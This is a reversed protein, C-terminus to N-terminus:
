GVILGSNNVDQAISVSYGDPYSVLAGLSAVNTPTSWKAARVGLYAFNEYIESYGVIEGSANIANPLSSAPEPSLATLIALDYRPVAADCNTAFPFAAALSLWAVVSKLLNRRVTGGEEAPAL